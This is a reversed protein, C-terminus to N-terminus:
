NLNFNKKLDDLEEQVMFQTLGAKSLKELLESLGTEELDHNQIGKFSHVLCAFSLSRYNIANINSYIAFQLNNREELAEELRGASLYTDLNQFRKEIDAMTSGIGSDLMLYTQMKNYRVVPLEKISEYIMLIDKGICIKRM